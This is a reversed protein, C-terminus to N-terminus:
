IGFLEDLRHNVRDFTGNRKSVEEMWQKEYQNVQSESSKLMLELEKNEHEALNLRSLYYGQLAHLRKLNKAILAWNKQEYAIKLKAWIDQNTQNLTKIDLKKM